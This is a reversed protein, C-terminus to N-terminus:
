LEIKLKLVKPSKFRKLELHFESQFTSWISRLKKIWLELFNNHELSALEYVELTHAKRNIWILSLSVDEEGCSENTHSLSETIETM